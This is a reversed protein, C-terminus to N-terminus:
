HALVPALALYAVAAVLLTILGVLGYSARAQGTSWRDGFFKGRSRKRIRRQVGPLLHPPSTAHPGTLARKVLARVADDEREEDAARLPERPDRV